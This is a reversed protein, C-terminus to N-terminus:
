RPEIRLDFESQPGGHSHAFVLRSARARTGYCLGIEVDQLQAEGVGTSSSATIAFRRGGREVTLSAGDLQKVELGPALLFGEEIRAAEGATSTFVDKVLLRHAGHELALTRQVLVGARSVYGDHGGAIVTVDSGNTWSFVKPHTHERVFWLGVLDNQELEDVVPTNHLATGREKLRRAPDNTYGSCGGEAIIWQGDLMVEFSLCDNHGHGGRGALGVSAVDVFVHDRRANRLVFYGSRHFAVSDGTVLSPSGAPTSRVATPGFYWLVSSAGADDRQAANQNGLAGVLDALYTHGSSDDAAAAARADDNDGLLPVSGDPRTYALAYWAARELREKALRRRVLGGRETALLGLFALEVMFRHYSISAEQQVGDSDFQLCIERELLAAAVALAAQAFRTSALAAAGVVIAALDGFYHNGRVATYEVFSAVFLWHEAIMQNLERVAPDTDLAERAILDRIHVLTILRLAPELTSAWNVGHCPRNAARFSGLVSLVFARDEERGWLAHAQACPLLWQLRALEWVRKVDTGPSASLYDIAKFSVSRPWQFGTIPDVHWDPSAAEHSFRAGLLSFTGSAAALRRTELRELYKSGLIRRWEARQAATPAPFVRRTGNALQDTLAQGGAETVAAPAWSIGRALGEQLLRV